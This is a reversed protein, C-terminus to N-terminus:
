SLTGLVRVEPEIEFTRLAELMAKGCWTEIEDVQEPTIFGRSNRAAFVIQASCARIRPGPLVEKGDKIIPDVASHAAPPNSPCSAAMHLLQFTEM